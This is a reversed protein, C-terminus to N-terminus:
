SNIKIKCVVITKFFHKKPPVWKPFGNLVKFSCCHPVYKRFRNRKGLANAEM